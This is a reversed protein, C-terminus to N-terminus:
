SDFSVLGFAIRVNSIQSIVKITTYITYVILVVHTTVYDYDLVLHLIDVTDLHILDVREKSIISDEALQSM